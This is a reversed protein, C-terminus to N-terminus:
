RDGDVCTTAYPDDGPLVNTPTCTISGASYARNMPRTPDTEIGACGALLLLVLAAPLWRDARM